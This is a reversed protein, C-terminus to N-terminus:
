LPGLAKSAIEHDFIEIDTVQPQNSGFTLHGDIVMGKRELRISYLKDPIAWAPYQQFFSPEAKFNGISLIKDGPSLGAKYAPSDLLVSKVQMLGEEVVLEAGLYAGPNQGSKVKMGIKEFYTPIDLSDTTSIFNWFQDRVEKGGLDSIIELVDDKDVGAGPKQKAREWLNKCFEDLHSGQEFLLCHLLWFVLRGKQYYNISQNKFNEGAKYLGVWSNFSAEELTQFRSGPNAAYSNLLQRLQGLYEERTSLGARFVIWEDMCTTLGEVLWLLSTYNEKSYDFKLFDKPIIAKVNWAHFYEHAILSLWNIYYSRKPLYRGDAQLVTGESHELGGMPAPLLHSIFTYHEFPADGFIHYVEDCLKQFAPKLPERLPLHDGSFCLYHDLGEIRFGDTEQCGVQIPSDLLQHYDKARYIFIERQTSIDELSTTVKSWLPSFKLTIECPCDLQGEIGMLYSPGHLFAFLEDIFATRVSYDNCYVEYQIEFTDGKIPFDPHSFQIEWRNKEKQELYLPAGNEGSGRLGKLHTSYDRVLYSGPTWVPLFIILNGEKPRKGKLRVKVSHSQPETIDVSYQWKEEVIINRTAM